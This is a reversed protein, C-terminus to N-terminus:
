GIPFVMRAYAVRHRKEVCKSAKYLNVAESLKIGIGYLFAAVRRTVSVAPERTFLDTIVSTSWTGISCLQEEVVALPDM